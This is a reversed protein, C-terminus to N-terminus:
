PLVTVAPRYPVDKKARVLLCHCHLLVDPLPAEGGTWARGRVAASYSRPPLSRGKKRPCPPLPLPATCGAPTSGRRDLSARERCCQLQPATLFTRKQASLSATAISCYM